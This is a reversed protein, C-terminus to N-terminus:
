EVKLTNKNKLIFLNCKNQIYNQENISTIFICIFNEHIKLSQTKRLFTLIIGNNGFWVIIQM